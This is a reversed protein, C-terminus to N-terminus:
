FERAPISTGNLFLRGDAYRLAVDPGGLKPALRRMAPGNAAIPSTWVGAGTVEMAAASSRISLGSPCEVMMVEAEFGAGKRRLTARRRAVGIAEVLDAKAITMEWRGVLDNPM